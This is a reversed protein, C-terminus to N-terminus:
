ELSRILFHQDFFEQGHDPSSVGNEGFHLTYDFYSKMGYLNTLEDIFAPCRDYRQELGSDKPIREHSLKQLISIPAEARIGEPSSINVGWYITIM